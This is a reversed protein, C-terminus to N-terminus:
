LEALIFAVDRTIRFCQMLFLHRDLTCQGFSLCDRSTSSETKSSGGCGRVLCSNPEFAFPIKMTTFLFPGRIPNLLHSDSVGLPDGLLAQRLIFAFIVGGNTPSHTRAQVLDHPKTLRCVVANAESIAGLGFLIIGLASASSKIGGPFSIQLATM